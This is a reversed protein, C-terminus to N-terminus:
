SPSAAEPAREPRPLLVFTAAGLALAGLGGALAPARPGFADLLAGAAASSLIGGVSPGFTALAGQGSSRLGEPVVSEVYLQIGVGLGAISVGHLLQAAFVVPLEPVLACITWRLGDAVVGIAVLGRAGFRRLASGSYIVLPIELAIMPLWMRSVLDLDGGIERVFVPFLLIPGQLLLWALFAYFLARRFPGHRLLRALEGRRARVAGGGAHTRFAPWAATASFLAAVGFLWGLGPESPGGPARAWGLERQAVHLLPPFGAVLVLFGLTGFVRVQGFRRSAEAGLAALTVSTGLPLVSTSFLASAAMAFLLAAFGDALPFVAYTAASALALAGLVRSRSGTRDALQGWLPQALMGVLPRVALVLGVEAGTLGANERLYLSQYPFVAGLGGMYLLWFWVLPSRLM